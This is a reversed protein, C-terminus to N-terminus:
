GNRAALHLPSLGIKSKANVFAKHELLTDAVSEHGSEAALHLAAKGHQM